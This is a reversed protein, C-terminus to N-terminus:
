EKEAMPRKTVIGHIRPFSPMYASTPRIPQVDVTPAGSTTVHVENSTATQSANDTTVVIYYYDTAPTLPEDDLYIATAGVVPSGINSYGSGSIPSRRLQNSYPPTGDTVTAYHLEASTSTVVTQSLTGATVSPVEVGPKVDAAVIRTSVGSCGIALSASGDDYEAMANIVSGSSEDKYLQTGTATGQAAAGGQCGVAKNGTASSLTITSGAGTQSNPFTTAGGTQDAGDFAVADVFIEASGTWNIHLTKNGTAPAVLGFIACTVVGSSSAVLQTMAQNGGASDWHAAIGTVSGSGFSLVLMLATNSGAAVTMGTYDFSTAAAHYQETGTANLTLTMLIPTGGTAIALPAGATESGAFLTRVQYTYNTNESVTSDVYTLLGDGDLTTPMTGLLSYSGSTKRYVRYSRHPLVDYISVHIDGVVLSAVAGVPRASNAATEDFVSTYYDVRQDHADKAFGKLRFIHAVGDEYYSRVNQTYGLDPFDTTNAEGILWRKDQVMQRWAGNDFAMQVVAIGRYNPARMDMVNYVNEGVVMFNGLESADFFAGDSFPTNTDTPPADPDTIAPAFVKPDDSQTIMEQAMQSIVLHYATYTDVGPLDGPRYVRAYGTHNYDTIGDPCGTNVIAAPTEVVWTVLDASTWLHTEQYGNSDGRCGDPPTSDIQEEHGYLYFPRSNADDAVYTLWCSEPADYDHGRLSITSGISPFSSALIYTWSTPRVGPDDSFGILPGGSHGHDSSFVWVYRGNTAALGSDWLYLPYPRLWYIGILLDESTGAPTEAATFFDAKQKRAFSYPAPGPDPLPSFRAKDFTQGTGSNNFWTLVADSVTSRLMVLPGIYGNFANAVAAQSWVFQGMQRPGIGTPGLDRTITGVEDVVAISLQDSDSDYTVAVTSWDNLALSVTSDVTDATTGWLPYSTLRLKTTNYSSVEIPPKGVNSGGEGAQQLYLVDTGMAQARNVRMLVTWTGYCCFMRPSSCQLIAAGGYTPQGDVVVRGDVSASHVFDSGFNKHDTLTIAWERPFSTPLQGLRDVQATGDSTENLEWWQALGSVVPGALTAAPVIANTTDPYATALVAASDGNTSSAIVKYYYTTGNSATSDTYQRASFSETHLLNGGSPTFGSTTGRHIKYATTPGWPSSHWFVDVSANGPIAFVAAPPEPTSTVLDFKGSANMVIQVGDTVPVNAAFTNWASDKKLVWNADGIRFTTTFGVPYLTLNAPDIIAFHDGSTVNANLYTADSVPFIMTDVDAFEDVKSGIKTVASFLTGRWQGVQTSTLFDSGVDKGNTIRNNAFKAGTSSMPGTILTASAGNVTNGEMVLSDTDDQITLLVGSTITNDNIVIGSFGSVGPYLGLHSNIIGAGSFTNRRISVDHAAESLLIGHGSDHISCREVTLSTGTPGIHVLGNAEGRIDCWRLATSQPAAVAFNETANYVRDDGSGGIRVHDMLINASCSVASGNSSTVQGVYDKTGILSLHNTSTGGAYVIEGRFNKLICNFILIDDISNAGDLRIGKHDLDWGDGTTTNGGVTSDGTYGAQGDITLSRFQINTIAHNTSFLKFVTFRGIKSYSDGTNTWHTVPDTLGICFGKIISLAPGDGIVCINQTAASIASMDFIPGYDLADGSQPCCCYTGTPFYLFCGSGYALAAAVAARIAVTDDTTGDGTASYPASKVNYVQSYAPFACLTALNSPASGSDDPPLPM